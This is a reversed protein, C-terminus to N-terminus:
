LLRRRRDEFRFNSPLWQKQATVSSTPVKAGSGKVRRAYEPAVTVTLRAPDKATADFTPFAIERVLANFFNLRAVERSGTDVSLVAGDKRAFKHDLTDTLWQYFAKGMGAGAGLGIDTYRVGAIHKRIVGDPGLAERVVDGEADGGSASFLWGTSSGDLEFAFRGAAFGRARAM